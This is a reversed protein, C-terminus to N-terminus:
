LGVELHFGRGAAHAVIDIGAEGVAIRVHQIDLVKQVLRHADEIERLAGVRPYKRGRELSRGPREEVISGEIMRLPSQRPAKLPDRSFIEDSSKQVASSIGIQLVGGHEELM